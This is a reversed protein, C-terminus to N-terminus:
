QPHRSQRQETLWSVVERGHDSVALENGGFTLILISRAPRKPDVKDAFRLAEALEPSYGTIPRGQYTLQTREGTTPHDYYIGVCAAVAADIAAYLYRTEGDKFERFVQRRLQEIRVAGISQYRAYLPITDYGAIPVDLLDPAVVVV